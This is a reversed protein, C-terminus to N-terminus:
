WLDKWINKSIKHYMEWSEIFYKDFDEAIVRSINRVKKQFNEFYNEFIEIIPIDRCNEFSEPIM